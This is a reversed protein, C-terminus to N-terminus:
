LLHTLPRPAIVLQLLHQWWRAARTWEASGQLRFVVVCSKGCLKKKEKRKKKRLAVKGGRRLQWDCDSVFLLCQLATSPFFLRKNPSHLARDAPPLECVDTWWIMETIINTIRLTIKVIMLWTGGVGKQRKYDGLLCIVGRDTLHWHSNSEESSAPYGAKVSGWYAFM